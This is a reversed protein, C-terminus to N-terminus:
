VMAASWMNALSYTKCGSNSIHVGYLAQHHRTPSCSQTVYYVLLGMMDDAISGNCSKLHQSAISLFYEMGLSPYLPQALPLSSREM